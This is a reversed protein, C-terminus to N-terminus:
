AFHWLERKAWYCSSNCIYNPCDKFIHLRFQKIFSLFISFVTNLQAYIHHYTSSGVVPVVGKVCKTINRVAKKVSYCAIIGVSDEEDSVLM